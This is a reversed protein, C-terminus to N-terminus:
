AAGVQLQEAVHQDRAAALVAPGIDDFKEVYLWHFQHYGWGSAWMGKRHYKRVCVEVKILLGSRGAFFLAHTWDSIEADDTAFKKLEPLSEFIPADAETNWDFFEEFWDPPSEPDGMMGIPYIGAIRAEEEALAENYSATEHRNM